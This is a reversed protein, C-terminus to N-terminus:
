YNVGSRYRIHIIPSIYFPLNDPEYFLVRIQDNVLIDELDHLEDDWHFTILAQNPVFLLDRIMRTSWSIIRNDNDIEKVKGTYTRMRNTVFMRRAYVMGDEHYYEVAATQDWWLDDITGPGV